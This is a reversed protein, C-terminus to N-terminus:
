WQQAKTTTARYSVITPLVCRISVAAEKHGDRRRRWASRNGASTTPPRTSRVYSLRLRDCPWGPCPARQHVCRRGLRPLVRRAPAIISSKTTKQRRKKRPNRGGCGALLQAQDARTMCVCGADSSPSALGQFRFRPTWDHPTQTFFRPPPPSFFQTTNNNKKRRRRSAGFVSLLLASRAASAVKRSAASDISWTM